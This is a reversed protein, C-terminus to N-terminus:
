GYLQSHTGIMAFVIFEGNEVYYLARLDGTVNISFYDRYKGKLEHKRLVPNDPNEIFLSIRDKTKAQLKSPLKKFQKQFDKDFRISM